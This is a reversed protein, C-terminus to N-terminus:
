KSDKYGGEIVRVWKHSKIKEVWKEVEKDQTLSRYVENIVKM